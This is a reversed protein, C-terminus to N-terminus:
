QTPGGKQELEHRLDVGQFSHGFLPALVCFDLAGALLPVLGIIAIIWGPVDGVLLVGVVILVIGAVARAIRGNRSAFFVLMGDM